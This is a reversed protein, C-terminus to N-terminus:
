IHMLYTICIVGRILMGSLLVNKNCAIGFALFPSKIRAYSRLLFVVRQGLRISSVLAFQIGLCVFCFSVVCPQRPAALAPNPSPPVPLSCFFHTSSFQPGLFCSFMPIHSPRLTPIHSHSVHFHPFTSIHSHPFTPINSHPFTVSRLSRSSHWLTASLVM